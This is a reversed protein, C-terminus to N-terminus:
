LLVRKTPQYKDKKIWWCRQGYEDHWLEPHKKRFYRNANHFQEQREDSIFLVFNNDIISEFVHGHYTKKFLKEYYAVHKGLNQGIKM